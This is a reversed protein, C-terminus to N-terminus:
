CIIEPTLGDLHQEEIIYDAFCRPSTCGERLRPRITSFVKAAPYRGLASGHRWIYLREVVMSGEPRAASADNDFMRPLIGLLKETDEASFGNRKAYAACVSGKLLYLGYGVYARSGMTDSSKGCVQAGNVCRTLPLEVIEVPDVSVARQITVAGRVSVSRSGRKGTGCFVQGFARVDYWRRAAADVFESNDLAGLEQIRQALCDYPDKQPMILIDEGSEALRDRLKRKICVDSIIGYGECDTRPINCNLPDGNPNAMSVSILGMFDIRGNITM